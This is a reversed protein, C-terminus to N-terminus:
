SESNEKKQAAQKMLNAMQARQDGGGGTMHPSVRITVAEEKQEKNDTSGEKIEGLSRVAQRPSNRPSPRGLSIPLLGSPNVTLPTLVPSSGMM